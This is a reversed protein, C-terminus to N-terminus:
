TWTRATRTSSRSASSWTSSTAGTGSVTITDTTTTLDAIALPMTTMSGFHQTYPNDPGSVLSTVDLKWSNLSGVDSGADDTIALTRM